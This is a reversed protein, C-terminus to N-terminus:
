MHSKCPVYSTCSFIQMHYKGLQKLKLGTCMINLCSAEWVTASVEFIEMSAMTLGRGHICMCTGMDFDVDKDGCLEFRATEGGPTM